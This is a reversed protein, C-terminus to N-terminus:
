SSELGTFVDPTYIEAARRRMPNTDTATVQVANQTFQIGSQDSVYLPWVIEPSAVEGLYVSYTVSIPEITAYAQVLKLQKRFESGVVARPFSLTMRANADGGQDPPKIQMPAPIHYEGGLMVAEFQNAVLRFTNMAPHSFVVAHYEALPSKSSWFLTKDM